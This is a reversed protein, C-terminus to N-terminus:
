EEIEEIQKQILKIYDEWMLFAFEKTISTM